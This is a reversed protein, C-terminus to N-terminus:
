QACVVFPEVEIDEEIRGRGTLPQDTDVVAGTRLLLLLKLFFTLSYSLVLLLKLTSTPSYSYIM